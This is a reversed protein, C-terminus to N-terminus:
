NPHVPLQNKLPFDASNAIGTVYLNDASDVAVATANDHGSGGLFTSFTIQGAPTYERVFANPNDSKIADKLTFDSNGTSGVVVINDKSNVAVGIGAGGIYT